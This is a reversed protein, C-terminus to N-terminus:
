AEQAFRQNVHQLWTRARSELRQARQAPKDLHPARLTRSIWPYLPDDQWEHGFALALTCALVNARIDDGFGLQGAQSLAQQILERLAAEGCWTLREPHLGALDQLLLTPLASRSVAPTPQAAFDELRLLARLLHVDDPGNVQERYALLSQFLRTAREMEDAGHSPAANLAARAWVHQPDTSFGSGLLVMMELYSRVPGQLTFGDQRARKIGQIVVSEIQLDDLTAVLPPSFTNLHRVMQLAFAETAVQELRCIQKARIILM